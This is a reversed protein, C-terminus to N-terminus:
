SRCKRSVPDFACHLPARGNLAYELVTPEAGNESTIELRILQPPHTATWDKRWGIPAHDIPRGYYSFVGVNEPFLSTSIQEADEKNLKQISGLLAGNEITLEFIRAASHNGAFSVVRLADPQGEFRLRTEDNALLISNQFIQTLSEDVIRIAERDKGDQLVTSSVRISGYVAPALASSLGALLATAILAEVLSYGRQQAVRRMM